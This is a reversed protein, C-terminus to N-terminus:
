SDDKTTALLPSTLSHFREFFGPVHLVRPEPSDHQALGITTDSSAPGTLIETM